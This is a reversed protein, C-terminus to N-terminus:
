YQVLLHYIDRQTNQLSRTLRTTYDHNKYKKDCRGAAYTIVCWKLSFPSSVLDLNMRASLMIHFIIMFMHGSCSFMLVTIISALICILTIGTRQLRSVCPLVQLMEGEYSPLVHSQVVIPCELKIRNINNTIVNFQISHISDMCSNYRIIKISMKIKRSMSIITTNPVVLYRRRRGPPITRVSSSPPTGRNNKKRWASSSSISTNNAVLVQRHGTNRRVYYYYYCQDCFFCCFFFAAGFCYFCFFYFFPCPYCPPLLVVVDVVVHEMTIQVSSSNGESSEIRVLYFMQRQLLPPKKMM